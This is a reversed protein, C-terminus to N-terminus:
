KSKAEKVERSYIALSTIVGPKRYAMKKFFLLDEKAM